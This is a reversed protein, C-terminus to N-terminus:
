IYRETVRLLPQAVWCLRCLINVSNIVFEREQQRRAVSTCKNIMDSKSKKGNKNPEKEKWKEKKKAHRQWSYSANEPEIVKHVCCCNIIIILRAFISLKMKKEFTLPAADRRQRYLTFLKSQLKVRWWRKSIPRFRSKTQLKRAHIQAYLIIFNVMFLYFDRDIFSILAHQQVTGTFYSWTLHM